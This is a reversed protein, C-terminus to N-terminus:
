RQATLDRPGFDGELLGAIAQRFGDLNDWPIMHGADAVPVMVAAPNRRAAEAAGEATVMPSVGGHVFAVPSGVSPWDDFFDEEHFGAHSAAIAAEACTPLWRTRLELEREPWRPYHARLEGVTTGARAEALQRLFTELTIPYDGRGPGSLPPDVAIVPGALGPDHAAFTTAIRAGMSHGLLTPRDLELAEVLGAVDAAYDGLTYGGSAPTESLGRGRMDAVVFRWSGRIARVVFDWTIAPSTIGPLVLVGRGEGAYDLVHLRLGNAEVTRSEADLAAVDAHLAETVHDAAM